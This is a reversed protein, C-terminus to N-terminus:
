EVILNPLFEEALEDKSLQRDLAAGPRSSMDAPPATGFISFKVKAPTKRGNPRPRFQKATPANQRFGHPLQQCPVKRKKGSANCFLGNSSTKIHTLNSVPTAPCM